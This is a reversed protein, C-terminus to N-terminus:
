GGYASRRIREPTIPWFTHRAREHWEGRGAWGQQIGNGDQSGFATDYAAPGIREEARVPSQKPPSWDDPRVFSLPDVPKETHHHLWWAVAPRRTTRVRPAQPLRRSPSGVRPVLRDM